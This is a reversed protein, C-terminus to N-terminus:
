ETWKPEKYAAGAATLYERQLSGMAAQQEADQHDYGLIHLCGHVVLLAVEDALSVGAEAAQRAATELSIAMEGIVGEIPEGGDEVYSFSLVDAAYDNGAYEANLARVEDDDTLVLNIQGTAETQAAALAAFAARAPALDLDAPFEEIELVLAM